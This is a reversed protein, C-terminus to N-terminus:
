RYSKQSEGCDCSACVTGGMLHDRRASSGCRSCVTIVKESKHVGHFENGGPSNGIYNGKDDYEDQVSRMFYGM